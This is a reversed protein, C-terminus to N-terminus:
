SARRALHSKRAPFQVEGRGVLVDGTELLQVVGLEDLLKPDRTLVQAYAAEYRIRHEQRVCVADGTALPRDSPHPPPKYGSRAVEELLDVLRSAEERVRLALGHAETVRLDDSPVWADLRKAALHAHRLVAVANQSVVGVPGRRTYDRKSKPM